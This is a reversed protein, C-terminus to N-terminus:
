LESESGQTRSTYYRRENGYTLPVGHWAAWVDHLLAKVMARRAGKDAWANSGTKELRSRELEGREGALVRAVRRMKAQAYVDGYPGIAHAPIVTVAPDVVVHSGVEDRSGSGGDYTISKEGRWQARFLPDAIIGMVRGRSNRPIKRGTKKEGTPYCEDPCLGLRKYLARRGSGRRGHLRAYERNYSGIDGAEGILVALGWASFGKVHGIVAWAPLSEALKEAEKRNAADRKNMADYAPKVDLVFGAIQAALAADAEAIEKGDLLAMVVNRARDAEKKRAKADLDPQWATLHTRAFAVLGHVIKIRTQEAAKSLRVHLKIRDITGPDFVAQSEDEAQSGAGDSAAPSAPDSTFRRGDCHRSGSEPM